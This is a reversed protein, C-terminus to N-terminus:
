EDANNSLKDNVSKDVEIVDSKADKEAKSKAATARVKLEDCIKEIKVCVDRTLEVLEDTKQEVSSVYKDHNSDIKKSFSSLVASIKDACKNNKAINSSCDEMKKLAKSTNKLTKSAVVGVKKGISM